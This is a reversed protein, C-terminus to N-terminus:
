PRPGPGSPAPRRAGTSSRCSRGRATRDCTIRQGRHPRWPAQHSRWRPLARWRRHTARLEQSRRTVGSRSRLHGGAKTRRHAAERRPSRQEPIPGTGDALRPRRPEASRRTPVVHPQPRRGTMPAVEVITLAFRTAVEELCGLAGSPLPGDFAVRADCGAFFGPAEALLETLQAALVSLPPSGAISIELGRTTGRLSVADKDSAASATRDADSLAASVSPAQSM